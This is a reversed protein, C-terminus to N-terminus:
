YRGPVKACLYKTSDANVAPSSCRIDGGPATFGDWSPGSRPSAESMLPSDTVDFGIVACHAM